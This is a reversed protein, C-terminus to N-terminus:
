ENNEPANVEPITASTFPITWSLKTNSGSLLKAVKQFGPLKTADIKPWDFPHAYESFDPYIEKVEASEYEIYVFFCIEENNWPRYSKHALVKRDIGAERLFRKVERSNLFLPFSGNPTKESIQQDKVARWAAIYEALEKSSVRSILKERAVKDYPIVPQGLVDMWISALQSPEPLAAKTNSDLYWEAIIGVKDSNRGISGLSSLGPLLSHSLDPMRKTGEEVIVMRSDPIATVKGDCDERLNRHRKEELLTVFSNSVLVRSGLFRLEHFPNDHHQPIEPKLRYGNFPWAWRANDDRPEQEGYFGIACDSGTLRFAPFWRSLYRSILVVIKEPQVLKVLYPDALTFGNAGFVWQTFKILGNIRLGPYTTKQYKAIFRGNLSEEPGFVLSHAILDLFISKMLRDSFPYAQTTLSDRALNLNLNGDPDFVSVTPIEPIWWRSDSNQYGYSDRYGYPHWGRLRDTQDKWSLKHDGLPVLIGNCYLREVRHEDYTWHIDSFGPFELRRWRPPLTSLESPVFSDSGESPFEPETGDVLWGIKPYELYYWRLSSYAFEESLEQFTGQSCKVRVTTGHPRAQKTLRIIEQDLSAKFEVGIEEQYSRTSVHIENGILFTALAGVGFRGSRLVKSRGESDSFNRRWLDSWRFTSGAKLFYEQVVEATMGVGRDSVEVWYDWDDPVEDGPNGCERNCLRVIIDCNPLVDCIPAKGLQSEINPDANRLMDLERVADVANQLLERIGIGPRDGYLPSILLKIFDSKSTEFSAKIPYFPLASATQDRLINSTARRIQLWLGSLDYRGYEQGLIAWSSDLESQLTGIWEKIRFYTQTNAVKEPEVDIAVAEPDPETGLRIDAIAQHAQWERRSVPTKRKKLEREGGSARQSHMNLVDATRLVAMLYVAHVGKTVRSNFHKSTLYGLTSSLSIGHSRAVFGALDPIQPFLEKDLEISLANDKAEKKSDRPLGFLAVEHAVRGHHIRLFEGILRKDIDDWLGAEKSPPRFIPRNQLCSEYDDGYVNRLRRGDWHQAEGLFQEWLFPWTRTDFEEVLRGDDRILCLFEEPSLHMGIDHLLVAYVLTASDEATLIKWSDPRNHSGDSVLFDALDLVMQSHQIGHDTYDPFFPCTVPSGLKQECNKLYLLIHPYLTETPDESILKSKLREPLEIKM